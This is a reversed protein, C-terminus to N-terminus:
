LHRAHLEKLEALKSELHFICLYDEVLAWNMPRALSAAHIALRHFTVRQVGRMAMAMGGIVAYRLGAEDLRAVLRRISRAFDM